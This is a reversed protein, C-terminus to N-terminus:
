APLTATSSRVTGMKLGTPGILQDAFRDVYGLLVTPDNVPRTRRSPSFVTSDIGRRMLFCPKGTGELLMEVLDPSPALIVKAMKYFQLTAALAGQHLRAFELSQVLRRGAYKQLDRHWSAAMPIKFERAAIVGLIGCDGPGTIPVVDPAFQRIAEVAATRYRLFELDFFMDSDLRLLREGRAIEM